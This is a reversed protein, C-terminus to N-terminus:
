LGICLSCFKFGMKIRAVSLFHHRILVAKSTISGALRGRARVGSLRRVPSLYPSRFMVCCTICAWIPAVAAAGLFQNWRACDGEAQLVASELAAFFFPNADVDIAVGNCSFIFLQEAEVAEPYRRVVM